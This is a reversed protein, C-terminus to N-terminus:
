VLLKCKKKSKKPVTYLKLFYEITDYKKYNNYM